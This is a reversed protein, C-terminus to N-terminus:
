NEDRAEVLLQRSFTQGAATCQGTSLIRFHHGVFPTVALSDCRVQVSCNTLGTTNFSYTGYPPLSQIHVNEDRAPCINAAGSTNLPFLETLFIEIGSQAAHHARAGYVETVAGTASDSLLRTLAAGIVSMVVIIFVAIMLASGSQQHRRSHQRQYFSKNLCM